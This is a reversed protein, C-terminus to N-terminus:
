KIINSNNLTCPVETHNQIWYILEGDIEHTRYIGSDIVTGSMINTKTIDANKNWQINDDQSYLSGSM